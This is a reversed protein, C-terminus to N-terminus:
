HPAPFPDEALEDLMESETQQRQGLKSCDRRGENEGQGDFM